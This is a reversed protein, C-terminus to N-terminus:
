NQNQLETINEDFYEVSCVVQLSDNSFSELFVKDNSKIVAFNSVSRNNHASSPLLGYPLDVAKLIIVGNKFVYEGSAVGYNKGDEGDVSFTYGDETTNITYNFVTKIENGNEDLKINNNSASLKMLPNEIKDINIHFKTIDQMNDCFANYYEIEYANLREIISNIETQYNQTSFEYYLGYLCKMDNTTFKCYYDGLGINIITCGNDISTQHYYVDAFGLGHVLEHIVLNIYRKRQKENNKFIESIKISIENYRGVQDAGGQTSGEEVRGEVDHFDGYEISIRTKNNQKKENYTQTDVLQYYYNANIDYLVGFVYDLAQTSCDQGFADLGDVCVYIPGGQTYSLKRYSTFIEGHMEFYENIKKSYDEDNADLGAIFEYYKQDDDLYVEKRKTLYSSDCDLDQMVQEIFNNTKFITEDNTLQTCGALGTTAVVGSVVVAMLKLTLRKILNMNKGDKKM